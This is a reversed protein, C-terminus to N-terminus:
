KSRLKDFVEVPALREETSLLSSLQQFKVVTPASCPKWMQRLDAEEKSKADDLKGGADTGAGVSTARRGIGSVSV